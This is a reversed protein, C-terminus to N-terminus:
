ARGKKESIEGRTEDGPMITAGGVKDSGEYIGRQALAERRAAEKAASRKQGAKWMFYYVTMVIVMSSAFGFLVGLEHGISPIPVYPVTPASM